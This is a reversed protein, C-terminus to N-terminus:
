VPTAKDTTAEYDIILANGDTLTYTVKVASQIFASAALTFALLILSAVRGPMM